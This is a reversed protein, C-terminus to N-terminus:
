AHAVDRYPYWQQYFAAAAATAATAVRNDEDVTDAPGATTATHPSHNGNHISRYALELTAKAINQAELLIDIERNLSLPGPFKQTLVPALLFACTAENVRAENDNENAHLIAGLLPNCLRALASAM